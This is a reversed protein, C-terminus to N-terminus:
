KAIQNTAYNAAAAVIQKPLASNSQVQLLRSENELTLTIKAEKQPESKTAEAVAVTKTAEISDNKKPLATIPSISRGDQYIELHLHNGTSRGTNGVLGLITEKTVLDGKKVKIESFHAYRSAFGSSHTVIVSKGYGWRGNEVVSVTGAALARVPTGKPRPVDVGPHWRSYGQSLAGALPWKFTPLNESRINVTMVVTRPDQSAALFDGAFAINHTYGIGNSVILLVLNALAFTASVRKSYLRSTLKKWALYVVGLNTRFDRRMLEIDLGVLYPNFKKSSLSTLSSSTLAVESNSHNKRQPLSRSTLDRVKRKLQM